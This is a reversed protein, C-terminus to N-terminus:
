GDERATNVPLYTLLDM